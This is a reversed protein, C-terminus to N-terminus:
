HRTDCRTTQLDGGRAGGTHTISLHLATRSGGGVMHGAWTEGREVAVPEAAAPQVARGQRGGEGEADRGGGGGRGRGGEGRVRGSLTRQTCM